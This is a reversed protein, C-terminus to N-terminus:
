EWPRVADGPAGRPGAPGVPVRMFPEGDSEGTAAVLRMLWFDAERRLSVRTVPATLRRLGSPSSRLELRVRTGDGEPRLTVRYGQERLVEARRRGRITADTRWGIAREPEFVDVTREAAVPRGRVTRYFRVRQGLGSGSVVEAHDALTWEPLRDPDALLEWVREPPAATYREAVVLLLPSGDGSPKPSAPRPSILRREVDEREVDLRRLVRRALGDPQALLALLV